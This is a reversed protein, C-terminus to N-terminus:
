QGIPPTEAGHAPADHHVFGLGETPAGEARADSPARLADIAVTVLRAAIADLAVGVLSPGKRPVERAKRAGAVAGAQAKAAGEKVKAAGKAAQEATVAMARTDAGSTAILAGAGLAVGVAVWPHGEIAQGVDFRSAVAKVPGSIRGELELITEDLQARTHHVDHRAALIDSQATV